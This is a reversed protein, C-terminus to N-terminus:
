RVKARALHINCLTLFKMFRISVSMLTFCSRPIHYDCEWTFCPIVNMNIEHFSVIQVTDCSWLNNEHGSRKLLLKTWIDDIREVSKDTSPEYIVYVFKM